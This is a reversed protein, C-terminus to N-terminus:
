TAMALLIHLPTEETRFSIFDGTSFLFVKKRVFLHDENDRYPGFYGRGQYLYALITQKGSISTKFLTESPVSIDLITLDGPIADVPGSMEGYGGALVRIYSGNDLRLAPIQKAPVSLMKPNRIEATAPSEIWLHFGEIKGHEPVFVEELGTQEGMQFWAFGGASVGGSESQDLRYHYAGQKLLVLLQKNSVKNFPQVAPKVLYTTSVFHNLSLFPASKKQDAPGLTRYWRLGDRESSFQPDIVQQITSRKM